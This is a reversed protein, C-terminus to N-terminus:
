ATPWRGRASASPTNTTAAPTHVVIRWGRNDRPARAVALRLLLGAEPLRLIKECPLDAIRLPHGFFEGTNGIQQLLATVYLDSREVHLLVRVLHLPQQAQREHDRDDTALRAPKAHHAVIASGREKASM